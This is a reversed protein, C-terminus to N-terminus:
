RQLSPLEWAASDTLLTAHRERTGSGKGEGPIVQNLRSTASRTIKSTSFCERGVIVSVKGLCQINHHLTPRSSGAETKPNRLLDGEGEDRGKSNVWNTISGAVDIAYRCTASAAVYTATSPRSSITCGPSRCRSSVSYCTSHNIDHSNKYGAIGISGGGSSESEAARPGTGSDGRSDCSKSSMTRKLNKLSAVKNSICTTIIRFQDLKGTLLIVHIPNLRRRTLRIGEVIIRLEGVAVDVEVIHRIEAGIGSTKLNL